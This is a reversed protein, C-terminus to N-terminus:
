RDGDSSGTKPPLGFVDHRPEQRRDQQRVDGPGSEGPSVRFGRRPQPLLRRRHQGHRVVTRSARRRAPDIGISKRIREAVGVAGSGPTEPLLVVFEDGGYRAVVDTQRVDAGQICECPSSAAAPQRGRPGLTDNVQKLSDSDIMLVSFPRAYREAQHFVREACRPSRRAHQARRHTRRNRVATKAMHGYARRIDASLMTTIYAVLLMPSIQALLKTGFPLSLLDGAQPPYGLWVYCAAILVMELLTALKGLTLASVIIM